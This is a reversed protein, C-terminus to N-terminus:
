AFNRNAMLVVREEFLEDTRHYLSERIKNFSFLKEVPVSSALPTNFKIFVRKVNPYDNLMALDRRNDSLYRLVEIEAQPHETFSVDEIDPGFDFDHGEPLEAAEPEHVKQYGTIVAQIFLDRLRQRDATKIAAFWRTKFVPHSLSAIVAGHSNPGLGLLEGFREELGDAIAKLVPHSFRHVQDMLKRVKYRLELLCPLLFGYYNNRESQLKDLASTLPEMCKVHEQLYAVDKETFPLYENLGINNLLWLKDKVKLIQALASHISSWKRADPLILTTELTKLIVDFSKPQSVAMWLASCKRLAENHTSQFTSSQIAKVVDVTALLCLTHSRLHTPQCREDLELGAAPLNEFILDDDHGVLSHTYGYENFDKAFNIGNDTVITLIKSSNLNFDTNIEALMHSIKNYSQAKPFRRCAMAASKRELSNVDIWHVSANVFRSLSTSWVDVTTCVFQADQLAREVKQTNESHLDLIRKSLARHSFVKEISVCTCIHDVIARFYESNLTKLPVLTNVAYDMLLKELQEQTFSCKCRKRSKEGEGIPHIPINREKNYRRRHKELKSLEICGHIRKIHSIFNNSSHYTGKVETRSDTCRKCIAVITGDNQNCKDPVVEFFTGDLIAKCSNAIRFPETQPVANDVITHVERSTGPRPHELVLDTNKEDLDVNHIQNEDSIFENVFHNGDRANSADEADDDVTMTYDQDLNEPMIKPKVNQVDGNENYEDVKAIEDLELEVIFEQPDLKLLDEDVKEVKILNMEANPEEKSCIRKNVNVVEKIEEEDKIELSKRKSPM